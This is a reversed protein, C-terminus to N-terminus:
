VTKYYNNVENLQEWWSLKRGQPWTSSSSGSAERLQCSTKSWPCSESNRPLHSATSSHTLASLLWGALSPSPWVQLKLNYHVWSQIGTNTASRPRSDQLYSMDVNQCKTILLVSLLENFSSSFPGVQIRTQPQWPSSCAAATASTLM